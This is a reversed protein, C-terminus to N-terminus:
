ILSVIKVNDYVFSKNARSNSPEYKELFVADWEKKRNEALIKTTDRKKKKTKKQRQTSTITNTSTSQQLVQSVNNPTMENTSTPMTTTDPNDESDDINVVDINPQQILPPPQLPPMPPAVADAISPQRPSPDIETM